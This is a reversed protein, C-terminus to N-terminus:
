INKGTALEFVSVSSVDDLLFNPWCLWSTSQQQQQQQKQEKKSNKKIKRDVTSDDKSRRNQFWNVIKLM